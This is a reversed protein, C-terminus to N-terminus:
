KRKEATSLVGKKYVYSLLCSFNQHFCFCLTEQKENTLEDTFYGYEKIKKLAFYIERSILNALNLSITKHHPHRPRTRPPTNAPFAPAHPARLGGAVGARDDGDAASRRRAVRAGTKRGAGKPELAFRPVTQERGPGGRDTHTEDRVSPRVSPAGRDTGILTPSLKRVLPQARSRHLQRGGGLLACCTSIAEILATFVCATNLFPPPVFFAAAGAFFFDKENVEPLGCTLM